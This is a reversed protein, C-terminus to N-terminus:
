NKGNILEKLNGAVDADELQKVLSGFQNFPIQNSNDKGAQKLLWTRMASGDNGKNRITMLRAAFEKRESDTCERDKNEDGPFVVDADTIPNEPTVANSSPAAPQNAPQAKEQAPSPANAGFEFSTAKTAPKTTKKPAPKQAAQPTPPPTKTFTGDGAKTFTASKDGEVGDVDEDPAIGLLSCADYRRYYSIFSGLEQPKINEPLILGDSQETETGFTLKTTVRLKGDKIVFPQSFAIGEGSLVPIAMSLVDALDAFKYTYQGGANTRVTATKNKQVPTFKKQAAALAKSLQGGTVQVEVNDSM